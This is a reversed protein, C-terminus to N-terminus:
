VTNTKKQRVESLMIGELDTWTTVFPLIENKKIASVANYLSQTKKMQECMWSCKPQKWVKAITLLPVTLVPHTYRKDNEYKM